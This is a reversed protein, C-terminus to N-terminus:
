TLVFVTINRMLEREGTFSAKTQSEVDPNYVTIYNESRYLCLFTGNNPKAGFGSIAVRDGPLVSSLGEIEYVALPAATDNASRSKVARAEDFKFTIQTLGTSLTTYTFSSIGVDAKIVIIGLPASEGAEISVPQNNMAQINLFSGKFNEGFTIQKTLGRIIQDFNQNCFDVFPDISKKIDASLLAKDFAKPTNLAVM